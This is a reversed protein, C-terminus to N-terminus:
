GLREDGHRLEEASRVFEMTAKSMPVEQYRGHIIVM